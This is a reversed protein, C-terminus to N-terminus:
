GLDDGCNKCHMDPEYDSTFWVVGCPHNRMRCIISKITRNNKALVYKWWKRNDKTWFLIFSLFIELVRTSLRTYQMHCNYCYPEFDFFYIDKGGCYRCKM